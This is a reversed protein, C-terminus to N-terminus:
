IILRDANHLGNKQSPPSNDHCGGSNHRQMDAFAARDTLCLSAVQCVGVKRCLILELFMQLIESYRKAISM